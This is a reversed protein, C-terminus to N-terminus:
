RYTQTKSATEFFAKLNSHLIVDQFFFLEMPSIIKRFALFLQWLSICPQSWVWAQGHPLSLHCMHTSGKQSQHYSLDVQLKPSRKISLTMRETAKYYEKMVQFNSGKHFRPPLAGILPLIPIPYSAGVWQLIWLVIVEHYTSFLLSM